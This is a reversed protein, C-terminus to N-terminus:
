AGRLVALFAEGYRDLKVRGVGSLALMEARSRPVRAAMQRVVADSFVIYAPVGEADAIRKRAARLREFLEPDAPPADFAPSLSGVRDRGAPVPASETTRAGRATGPPAPTGAAVLAEIGAGRCVDCSSGCPAIAEDLYRAIARHRCGGRDVLRFLEVTKRRTEARVEHDEIEDLFADYGIVDAWSYMLVCDSALGDRGARGIEQYWAEVSKPMDRHVVFRVNSKDIGMGFAVTAVVVDVEDRAFADQTRARTEDALGAHYPAARVGRDRLWGATSEVSRRSLCYVIGSEGRHRRVIALIDNRTNRGAGKKQATIVLNPRFFSGKFGDPKV